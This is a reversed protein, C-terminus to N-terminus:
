IKEIIQNIKRLIKHDGSSASFFKLTELAAPQGSSDYVISWPYLHFCGKNQFLFNVLKKKLDTRREYIQNSKEYLAWLDTQTSWGQVVKQGL